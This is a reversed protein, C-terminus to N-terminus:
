TIPLPSNMSCNEGSPFQFLNAWLPIVLIAQFVDIDDPGYGAEGLYLINFTLFHSMAAGQAAYLGGFLRLRLSRSLNM